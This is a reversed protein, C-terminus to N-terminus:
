LASGALFAAVAVLPLLVTKLKSKSEKKRGQKELDAIRRTSEIQMSAEIKDEINEMAILDQNVKAHFDLASKLTDIEQRQEQIIESQTDVFSKLDPNEIILTDVRPTRLKVLQKTLVENRRDQAKLVVNIKAISDIYVKGISDQRGQAEKKDAKNIANSMDYQEKREAEKQESPRSCDKLILLIAVITLVAILITKLDIKM